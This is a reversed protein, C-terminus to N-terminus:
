KSLMVDYAVCNCKLPLRTTYSPITFFINVFEHPARPLVVLPFTATKMGSTDSSNKMSMIRGAM